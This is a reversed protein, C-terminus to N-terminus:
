SHVLYTTSERERGGERGRAGEKGERKKDEEVKDSMFTCTDMWICVYTHM